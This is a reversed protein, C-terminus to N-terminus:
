AKTGMLSLFASELTEGHKKVEEIEAGSEVLLSVLPATDVDGRLDLLLSGNRIQAASVEPRKRLLALVPESFGRGRIELRAVSRLSQLNAPKGTALLKGERVVAVEDCLSEAEALNHTTLFITVGERRSLEALERRLAAAAVADLGSTPEDLFILPPQHLLARAVALKQQMGRGWTGVVELRRDWLDFHRLLQEIRVRRAEDPMRWIRGFYDLNDLATLREYLGTHELLAGTRRRIEDAHQQADFGLVIARGETPEILGLLLRIVTTKGAGNPGLLGFISGAPVQLNLHDLARVTGYDRTLNETLIAPRSM